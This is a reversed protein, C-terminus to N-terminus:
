LAVREGAYRMSESCLRNQGLHRGEKLSSRQANKNWDLGAYRLLLPDPSRDSRLM